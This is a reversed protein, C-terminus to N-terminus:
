KITEKLAAIIKQAAAHLDADSIGEGGVSV